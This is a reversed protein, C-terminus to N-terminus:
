LRSEFSKLGKDSATEGKILDAAKEAIMIVAANPNGNVIEPMVSADIVRLNDAGHVRLSSDVVSASDKGMKCTGVPHYITEATKRIHAAIAEDTELNEFYDKGRYPSLAKTRALELALKIGEILTRLDKDHDLYNPETSPATFPDNSRLSIM